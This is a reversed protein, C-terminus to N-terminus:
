LEPYLNIWSSSTIVQPIETAEKSVAQARSNLYKHEVPLSMPMSSAARTDAVAVANASLVTPVVSSILALGALLMLLRAGDMRHAIQRFWIQQNIRSRGQMLM